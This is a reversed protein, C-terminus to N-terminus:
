KDFIGIPSGIGLERILKKFMTVPRRSGRLSEILITPRASM